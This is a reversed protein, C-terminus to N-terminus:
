SRFLRVLIRKTFRLPRTIKWSTSNYVDKLEYSKLQLAEDRQQIYLNFTQVIKDSNITATEMNEADLQGKKHYNNIQLRNIHAFNNLVAINLSKDNIYEKVKEYLEEIFKFYNLQNGDPDINLELKRTISAPNNRYFYPQYSVLCVGNVAKDYWQLTELNDEHRRYNSLHWNTNKVLESKYLKGCATVPEVNPVGELEGLYYYLVQKKDKFVKERYDVIPESATNIENNNIFSKFGTVSIDVENTLLSEYLVKVYDIHVIDDSDVFTIYEGHAKSSGIARAMNLGKNVPQKLVIVRKDIKKYNNIIEDSGDTSCDNVLIIEINKYTQRNISEICDRLYETSNYIPVIISVLPCLKSFKEYNKKLHFIDFCAKFFEPQNARNSFGGHSGSGEVQRWVFDAEDVYNLGNESNAIFALAMLTDEAYVLNSYVTLDTKKCIEARVLFQGVSDTPNVWVKFPLFNEYFSALRQATTQSFNKWPYKQLRGDPFLRAHGTVAVDYKGKETALILNEIYKELVYDDCDMFTIWQGHSELIGKERGRLPGGSNNELRFAFINEYQVAYNTCISWSNDTSQDDVLIIELNKYTQALLSQVGQELYKEANYVPVICSVLDHNKDM